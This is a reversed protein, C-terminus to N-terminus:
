EKEKYYSIAMCKDQDNYTVGGDNLPNRGSASIIWSVDGDDKLRAVSARYLVKSDYPETDTLENPQYDGCIFIDDDNNAQSVSNIHSMKTFQAHWRVTGDRKNFRIVSGLGRYRGILYLASPQKPDALIFTAEKKELLKNATIETASYEVFQYNWDVLIQDGDAVRLLYMTNDKLFATYFYPLYDRYDRKDYYIAGTVSYQPVVDPSANIYDLSIFRNFTGDVTKVDMLLPM